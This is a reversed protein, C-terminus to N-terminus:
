PSLHIFGDTNHIGMGVAVNDKELSSKTLCAPEALTSRVHPDQEDLGRLVAEYGVYYVFLSGRLAVDGSWM